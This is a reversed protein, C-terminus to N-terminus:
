SNYTNSIKRMLEATLYVDPHKRIDDMLCKRSEKLTVGLPIPDKLANQLLTNLQALIEDIFGPYFEPFDIAPYDDANVSFDKNPM